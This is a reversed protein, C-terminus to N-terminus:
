VRSVPDPGTDGPSQVRINYRCNFEQRPQAPVWPLAPSGGLRSAVESATGAPEAPAEGEWLLASPGITGLLASEGLGPGIPVLPAGPGLNSARLLMQDILMALQLFSNLFNAKRPLRSSM